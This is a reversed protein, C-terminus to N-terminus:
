GPGPHRFKLVETTSRYPSVARNELTLEDVVEKLASAERRLYKVEDSPVTVNGFLARLLIQQCTLSVGCRRRRAVDADGHGQDLRRRDWYIV